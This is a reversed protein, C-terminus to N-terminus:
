AEEDEPNALDLLDLWEGAVEQVFVTQTMRECTYSPSQRNFTFCKWERAKADQPQVPLTYVRIDGPLYADNDDHQNGPFLAFIYQQVSLPTPAGNADTTTGPFIGGIELEVGHLDVRSMLKLSDFDEQKAEAQDLVVQRLQQLNLVFASFDGPETEEPAAPPAPTVPSPPTVLISPPIPHIPEAPQTM